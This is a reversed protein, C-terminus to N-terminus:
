GGRARDPAGQRLAGGGAGDLGVRVEDGEEGRDRGADHCCVDERETTLKTKRVFSVVRAFARMNTFLHLRLLRLARATLEYDSEVRAADRGACSLEVGRARRISDRAQGDGWSASYEFRRLLVCMNLFFSRSSSMSTVNNTERERGPPAAAHEPSSQPQPM